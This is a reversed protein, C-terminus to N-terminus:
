AAAPARALILEGAVPVGNELRLDLAERATEVYGLRSLTQLLDAPSHRYRGTSPLLETAAGASVEISFAFVGGAPLCRLAAAFVPELEGVYVFVDAAVLLDWRQEAALLFELVEAAHLERYLGKARAHDLMKPSLDVGDIVRGEHAIEVAMLGTGCGLDLVRDFGDGAHERIFTALRSPTAYALRDVLTTEFRDAFDDFLSRIYDSEVGEPLEGSFAARFHAIVPDAPARAHAQDFAARAAETEGLKLRARGLWAWAQADEPDSALAQEIRRAGEVEANAHLCAVAYELAAERDEPALEMVRRRSLLAPQFQGLAGQVQALGQWADRLGPDAQVLQVFAHGAEAPRGLRRLCQARHLLLATHGPERQLGQELAALAEDPEGAELAALGLANWVSVRTPDAGCARRASLLAGAFDGSRRLALSANVALEVDKPAAASLPALLTAAEGFRQTQLLLVGLMKAASRDGAALLRRYGAEAQDFQGARHQALAADLAPNSM